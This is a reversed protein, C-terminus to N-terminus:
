MWELVADKVLNLTSSEDLDFNMMKEIKTFYQLFKRFQAVDWYHVLFRYTGESDHYWEDYYRNPFGHMIMMTDMREKILRVSKVYVYVQDDSGSVPVINLVKM